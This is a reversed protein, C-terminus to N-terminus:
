KMRWTFESGPRSDDKEYIGLVEYEHQGTRHVLYRKRHGALLYYDSNEIRTHISLGIKNFDSSELVARELIVRKIKM